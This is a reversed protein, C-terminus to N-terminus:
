SSEEKSSLPRLIVGQITFVLQSFSLSTILWSNISASAIYCYCFKCIAGNIELKIQCSTHFRWHVFLGYRQREGGCHRWGGWTLLWWQSRDTRWRVQQTSWVSIIPSVSLQGRRERHDQRITATQLDPQLQSQSPPGGGNNGQNKSHVPHAQTNILPSPQHFTGAVERKISLQLM